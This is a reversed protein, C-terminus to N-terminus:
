PATGKLSTSDLLGAGTSATGASAESVGPLDGCPLPAELFNRHWLEFVLLQWLTPSLDRRGKLHEDILQRVAGPSFYGRQLARPELLLRALDDKLEVRMWHVLPLAFGQKPRYIVERPVGVREALKKFIYKQTSDHLKWRAPLQTVWELFVHDLIPVRAELSNLMSMRDLKTLIDDPLYTKTDLYLLRSMRDSAPAKALLSAYRDLPNAFCRASELFELSFLARERGAAPLYALEDLYREDPPLTRNFVFHRGPISRPLLPHVHKRYWHGLWTPTCAGGSRLNRWYREYGAFVEDGGDGSLAVTVHERALRCVHYTPVMSSDIFPEELSRTLLDVTQAIDPDVRLEHHEAGFREAVLRAYPGENFDDKAFSITFTKVPKPSARAMLGVVVSSDTGGSLLAGVPVDSVLRIRVAEMLRHELEELCEGESVPEHAGYAPLDWYPRVRVNGGGLELLHGPSLKQIHTFATQPDSIYGFYFYQLLSEDSTDKLEPAAALIAKIESGFVLRGGTFAYHLPKIGLRDRALLLSRRREDYLALAFMGRLRLVCDAGLDEYLHVIVETDTNTYFRHARDELERRLDRFNYIEGNFVVWVNKQENHVPQHGGTRDIISLRRVGLGVGATVYVGEDDPGRHVITQCMRRVTAPEVLAGPETDVIGAIGCM